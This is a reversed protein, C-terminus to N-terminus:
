RPQVIRRPLSAHPDDDQTPQDLLLLLVEEGEGRDVNCYYPSYFFLLQFPHFPNLFYTETHVKSLGSSAFFFVGWIFRVESVELKDSWLHVLKTFMSYPGCKYVKRLRGFETLEDYTMGM